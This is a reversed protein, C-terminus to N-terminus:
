VALESARCRADILARETLVAMLARRYDATAHSDTHTSAEAQAIDAAARIAADNIPRNALAAEVRRLRQPRDPGGFAVIGAELCVGAADCGLFAAIGAYAFDGARPAMEAFGAGRSRPWPPFRIETIMEDPELATTLAGCFFEDARLVRTGTYRQIVFEADCLLAVAPFEAAPDAHASSGGVTGRNRIQYHAVHRVALAIAPNATAIASDELMRWRVLTGLRLGDSSSDIRDLGPLRNFDILLTPAALRFNLIPVLSQGGALVKAEGDQALLNLAEDLTEPRSYAFAPPKM